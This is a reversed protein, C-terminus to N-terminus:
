SSACTPRARSRADRGADAAAAPRRAARHRAPECRAAVRRMVRGGRAAGAARRAPLVPDRCSRAARLRRPVAAREVPLVDRRARGRDFALVFGGVVAGSLSGLGGIVTAIFAKLVPTFGMAPEVTGRRALIFIAAVGPSCAPSARLRDRDGPQGPHGDAAHGPLGPEGRAHGPRPDTRRLFVDARRPRRLLRGRTMIELWGITFAASTSRARQLLRAAARGEPAALGAGPVPEPHDRQRAFSSFLLTLFSAGRLPRFAIREM